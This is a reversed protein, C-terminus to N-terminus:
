SPTQFYMGEQKLYAIVETAPLKLLHGASCSKEKFSLKAVLKANPALWEKVCIENEWTWYMAKIGKKTKHLDCSYSYAEKADDTYAGWEKTKPIAASEDRIIYDSNSCLYKTQNENQLYYEITCLYIKLM